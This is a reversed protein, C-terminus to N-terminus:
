NTEMHQAPNFLRTSMEFQQLNCIQHQKFDQDQLYFLNKQSM